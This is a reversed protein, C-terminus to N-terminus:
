STGENIIWSMLRIDICQRFRSVFSVSEVALALQRGSLPEDLRVVLQSVRSDAERLVLDGVVGVYGDLARVRYGRVELVSRLHSGPHDEPGFRIGGVETEATDLILAEASIALSPEQFFPGSYSHCRARNERSCAPRVTESAPSQLVQDKTLRVPWLRASPNLVGLASADVLVEHRNLLSGVRVVGYKLRWSRDDFYFDVLKGCIGDQAQMRYGLLSGVRISM